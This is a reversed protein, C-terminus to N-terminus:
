ILDDADDDEEADGSFPLEPQDGRDAAFASQHVEALVKRAEYYTERTIKEAGSLPCPTKPELVFVVTPEGPPAQWFTTKAYVKGGFQVDPVIASKPLAAPVAAPAAPATGETPRYTSVPKVAPTLLPNTMGVSYPETEEVWARWSEADEFTQGTALDLVHGSLAQVADGNVLPGHRGLVVPLAGCSGMPRWGVVPLEPDDANFSILMNGPTAPFADM